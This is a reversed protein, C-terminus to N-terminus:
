IEAARDHSVETNEGPDCIEKREMIRELKRTFCETEEYSGTVIYTTGHIKRRLTIKPIWYASLNPLFIGAHYGSAFSSITWYNWYEKKLINIRKMMEMIEKTLYIMIM